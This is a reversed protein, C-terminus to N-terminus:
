CQRAVKRFTVSWRPSADVAGKQSRSKRGICRRLIDGEEEMTIPRVARTKQVQHAQRCPAM